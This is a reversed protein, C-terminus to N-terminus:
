GRHARRNRAQNRRKRAMRQGQRVSYGPKPYKWGERSSYLRGLVGAFSKEAALSRQAQSKEQQRARDKEVSAQVAGDSDARIINLGAGAGAAIIAAM